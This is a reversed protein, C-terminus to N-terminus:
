RIVLPLDREFSDGASNHAIVRLAYPRIFIPAVDLVDVAFAFRGFGVRPVDISFLNTRVEVSAVNTGGVFAGSWRTGRRVDLTSFYMKTLRPPARDPLVNPAPLTPTGGIQVGPPVSPMRSVCGQLLAVGLAVAVISWRASWAVAM